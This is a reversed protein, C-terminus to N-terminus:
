PPSLPTFFFTTYISLGRRRRIQVTNMVESPLHEWIAKWESEWGPSCTLPFFVPLKGGEQACTAGNRMSLSYKQFTFFHPCEDGLGPRGETPVFFFSFCFFLIFFPPLCKHNVAQEEQLKLASQPAATLWSTGAISPLAARRIRKLPRLAACRAWRCSACLM